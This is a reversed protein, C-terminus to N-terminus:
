LAKASLIETVPAAGEGAMITSATRLVKAKVPSPVGSPMNMPLRKRDAAQAAPAALKFPEPLQSRTSRTGRRNKIPLHDSVTAEGPPCFFRSLLIRPYKRFQIGGVMAIIEYSGSRMIYVDGFYSSDDLARCVANLKTWPTVCYKNRTDMANSCNMVFGALCAVSDIFYPAMTWHGSESVTLKIDAYAELCYMVVTQMGRYKEAYDVFNCAFPTYAMGHSFRSAKGQMALSDLDQIRGLVLHSHSAWFTLWSTADDYVINATAFSESLKGGRDLTQWTRDVISSQINSTTAAIRILQATNSNKRAVLGKMVAPNAVNMNCKGDEPRLKRHLYLGLTYAMDADICSTVVGCNNMCHAHAGTYFDPHMLDSVVAVIGSSEGFTEEVVNQVTSTQM